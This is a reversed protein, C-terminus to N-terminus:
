FHAPNCFSFSVCGWIFLAMVNVPGFVFISGLVLAVDFSGMQQHMGDVVIHMIQKLGFKACKTTERFEFNYKFMLKRNPNNTEITLMILENKNEEFAFIM